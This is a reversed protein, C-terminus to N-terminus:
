GNGVALLGDTPGRPRGDTSSLGLLTQEAAALSVPQGNSDFQSLAQALQNAASSLTLGGSNGSQFGSAATQAKADMELNKFSDSQGFAAMADVLGYVGAQLPTPEVALMPSDVAVASPKDTIFWVDAMTRRNGERDEFSSILGVTNGNDNISTSTALLDLGLINLDQLTHLEGADTVGNSNADTWVRLDAYNIDSNSIRGDLNSDLDALAEYGNAAKKGSSLWTADGFLESGDNITGDHNRDLVLFGDGPDAWGTATKQGSTFLDFHVGSSISQSLVGNNNLDLVLPTGIHLQQFQPTSMADMQAISLAAVQYETLAFVQMTSLAVIQDTSIGAIAGTAIAAVSSTSLAAIADTSLASIQSSALASLQQTTLAVAQDTNLVAIDRTELAVIDRTEMAAIQTGSLAMVQDTTLAVTGATSLAVM